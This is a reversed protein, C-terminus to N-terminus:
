CTNMQICFESMNAEGNSALRNNNLSIGCWKKYYMRIKICPDLVFESGWLISQVHPHNHM